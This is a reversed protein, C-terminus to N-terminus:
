VTLVRILRDIDRETNYLYPAIRLAGERLSVFVSAERLKQYLELTREATRGQVCVYAGRQNEDAPSALVCRDLPLRDIVQQILKRNHEWVTAAGARTVLDLSADWPALNLFNSTEAADFRQAGDLIKAEGSSLKTFDHANELAMWYAPAGRLEKIREPGAWFFGTGFPGLLWKYGASVVFDAGLTRVDMPVAGVTQSADLILMGGVARVADGIRKVDFRVANDFRAHSISIARTKPTIAQLYDETTIFRGSPNVIRVKLKGADRLPLWTTFHAPFEGRGVLVEDGPKWDVGNAIAVMGTSAGSTVAVEGANAGILAALKRRVSAPLGFFAEDPLKNPFKKWEIATQAARIATKPLPSQGALNLYAVDEFEFWEARWDAISQVQTAM